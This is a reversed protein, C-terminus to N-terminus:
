GMGPPLMGGTVKAMESAAIEDSKQKADRLASVLLDELMENDGGEIADPAISISVVDRQGNMEVKVVGGGVVGAGIVGVNIQEKAM